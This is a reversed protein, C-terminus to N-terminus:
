PRWTLSKAPWRSFSLSFVNEGNRGSAGKWFVNTSLRTNQFRGLSGTDGDASLVLPLFSGKGSATAPLVTLIVEPLLHSPKGESAKVCLNWMYSLLLQM